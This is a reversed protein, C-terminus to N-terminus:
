QVPNLIFYFIAIILFTVLIWGEWFIDSSATKDFNKSDNNRSNKQNIDSELDPYYTESDSNSHNSVNSVSNYDYELKTNKGAFDSHDRYYTAERVSHFSISERIVNGYDKDLEVIKIDM